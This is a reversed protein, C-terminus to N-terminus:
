RARYDTRSPVTRTERSSRGRNSRFLPNIECDAHKTLTYKSTELVRVSRALLADLYPDSSKWSGQPDTTPLVFINTFEDIRHGRLTYQSSVSLM